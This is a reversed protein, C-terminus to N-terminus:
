LIHGSKLTDPDDRIIYVPWVALYKGRVVGHFYILPIQRVMAERLGVNDPHRQNLGRYRYKLFGDAGFYDDYPGGFVTTITLPLELIKPKFIGQQSVLHIRHGEIVFGQELLHRRPLVDGYLDVQEALWQFAQLRVKRDIESTNFAVM